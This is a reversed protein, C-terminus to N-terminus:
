SGGLSLNLAKFQGVGVNVEKLFKQLSHLSQDHLDLAEPNGHCTAAIESLLGQSSGSNITYCFGSTEFWVLPCM